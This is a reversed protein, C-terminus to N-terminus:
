NITNFVKRRYEILKFLSNISADHYARYWKSDYSRFTNAQSVFGQLVNYHEFGEITEIAKTLIFFTPSLSELYLNMDEFYQFSTIQFTDVFDSDVFLGGKRNITYHGRRPLKIIGNLGLVPYNGSLTVLVNDYSVRFRGDRTYGVLGNDLLVTFFSRHGGNICFHLSNGTEVPTGEIWKHNHVGVVLHKGDPENYLRHNAVGLRIYGPSNSHIIYDMSKLAHEHYANVSYALERTGDDPFDHFYPQSFLFSSLIFWFLFSLYGM